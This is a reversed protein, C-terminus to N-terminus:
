NGSWPHFRYRRCQSHSTKAVPGQPFDGEDANRCHPNKDCQPLHATPRGDPGRLSQVVRRGLSRPQAGEERGPRTRHGAPTLLKPRRFIETRGSQGEGDCAQPRPVSSRHQGGEGRVSCSRYSSGLGRVCTDSSAQLPGRARGPSAPRLYPPTKLQLSESFFPRTPGSLAQRGDQSLSRWGSLPQLRLCTPLDGM